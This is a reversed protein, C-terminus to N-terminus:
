AYGLEALFGALRQAVVDRQAEIQKATVAYKRHLNELAAVCARQDAHLFSTNLGERPSCPNSSM